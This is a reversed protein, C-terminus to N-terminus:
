SLLSLLGLASLLDRDDFVFGFEGSQEFVVQAALPQQGADDGTGLAGDLLSSVQFGSRM